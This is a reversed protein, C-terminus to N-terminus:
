RRAQSLRSSRTALNSLKALSGSRARANASLSFFPGMTCCTALVMRRGVANEGIFHRRQSSRPGRRRQRPGRMRPVTASLSSLAMDNSSGLCSSSRSGASVDDKGDGMGVCNTELSSNVGGGWVSFCFCTSARMLSSPVRSAFCWPTLRRANKWVAAPMAAAKTAM